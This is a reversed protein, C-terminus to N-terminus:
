HLILSDTYRHEPTMVWTLMGPKAYRGSSDTFHASGGDNAPAQVWQCAGWDSLAHHHYHATALLHADGVPLHGAAQQSYWRYAKAEISTAGGRDFVQGHTLGLVWGQVEATLTPDDLAISWEVHSLAADRQAARAAHEFVATDDNDHRNIKKGDVRHEGHNGGVALVRVRDFLPALRDLGELVFTTAARVQGRRDLDITHAQHPFIFCGEVNDGNGLVVLERPRRAKPIERLRQRVGEFQRDLREALAPTGGGEGKGTQWDNWSVVLASDLDHNAMTRGHKPRKRLSRLIAAADIDGVNVRDRIRFRCYSNKNEDGPPGWYRVQSLVVEREPPLHLGTVNEISERWGAEHEPVEGAPLSLAVEAARGAADYEVTQPYERARRAMEPAPPMAARDALSM